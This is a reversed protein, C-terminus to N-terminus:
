DPAGPKTMFSMMEQAARGFTARHPAAAHSRPFDVRFHAGRSEEPLLAAVTIMLAIIAPDTEPGDSYAL